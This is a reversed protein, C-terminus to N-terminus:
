GRRQMTQWIGAYWEAMHRDAYRDVREKIERRPQAPVPPLALPDRPWGPRHPAIHAYYSRRGAPTAQMSHTWSALRAPRSKDGFQWRAFLPQLGPVIDVERAHPNPRGILWVGKQALAGGMKAGRHLLRRWPKDLPAVAAGAKSPRGRLMAIEMRRVNGSARALTRREATLTAREWKRVTRRARRTDVKMSIM